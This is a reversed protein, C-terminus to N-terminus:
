RWKLVCFTGASLDVLHCISILSLETTRNTTLERIPATALACDRGLRKGRGSPLPNTSVYLMLLVSMSRVPGNKWDRPVLPRDHEEQWRAASAQDTEAASIRNRKRRVCPKSGM